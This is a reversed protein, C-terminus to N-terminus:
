IGGEKELWADRKKREADLAEALDFAHKAFQDYADFATKGDLCFSSLATQFSSPTVLSQLAAIATQDRFTADEETHVSSASARNLEKETIFTTGSPNGDILVLAGDVIVEKLIGSFNVRDGVNFKPTMQEDSM